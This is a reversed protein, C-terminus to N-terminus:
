GSRPAEVAMGLATAAESMRQDYTVVARLESGLIRASALHVADVTRLVTGLSLTAADDLLPHDLNIQDIRGLQRRAQSIAEPGGASM